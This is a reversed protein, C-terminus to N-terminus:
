GRGVRPGRRRRGSRGCGQPPIARGTALRLRTQKLDAPSGSVDGVMLGARAGVGRRCAQRGVQTAQSGPTLWVEGRFGGWLLAELGSPWADVVLQGDPQARVGNHRPAGGAELAEALERLGMVVPVQPAPLSAAAAAALCLLPALEGCNANHEAWGGQLEGM